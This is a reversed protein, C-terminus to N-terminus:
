KPLCRMRELQLVLRLAIVAENIDGRKAADSCSCTEVNGRGPMRGAFSAGGARRFGCPWSMSPYEPDRYRKGGCGVGLIEM